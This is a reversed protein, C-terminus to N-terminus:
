TGDGSIPLVLARNQAKFTAGAKRGRKEKGEGAIISGVIQDAKATETRPSVM